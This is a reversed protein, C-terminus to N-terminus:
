LILKKRLNRATNILDRAEKEKQLSDIKFGGRMESLKMTRSDRPNTPPTAKM